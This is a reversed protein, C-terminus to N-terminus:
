SWSCLGEKSFDSLQDLFAGDKVSDLPANSHDGSDVV